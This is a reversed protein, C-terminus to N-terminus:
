RTPSLRRVSVCSKVLDAGNPTLGRCYALAASGCLRWTGGGMVGARNDIICGPSPSTTSHSTLALALAVTITTATGIAAILRRDRSAVPRQLRHAEAPM